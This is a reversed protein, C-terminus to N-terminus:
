ACHNGDLCWHPHVKHSVQVQEQRTDPIDMPIGLQGPHHLNLSCSACSYTPESGNGARGEAVRANGVLHPQLWARLGDNPVLMLGPEALSPKRVEGQCGQAVYRDTM